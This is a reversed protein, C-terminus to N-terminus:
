PPLTRGGPEPRLSPAPAEWSELIQHIFPPSAHRIHAIFFPPTFSYFVDCRNAGFCEVCEWFCPPPIQIKASGDPTPLVKTQQCLTNLSM